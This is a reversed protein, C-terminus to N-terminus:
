DYAPAAGDASALEDYVTYSYRWAVGSAKVTKRVMNGNVDYEFQSNADEQLRNAPDTVHFSSRHSAIRNGEPDLTYSELTAGGGDKVQTLREIADLTYARNRPTAANEQTATINGKVDYSYAFTGLKLNLASGPAGTSSLGHAISKLRGTNGNAALPTEFAAATTLGNPSTVSTRRGATDYALGIIRGSPATVSTLRDALDYGYSTRAGGADRTLTRRGLIDYAHDFSWAAGLGGAAQAARTLQNRSDYTFLYSAASAAGASVLNDPSSYRDYGYTRLSEPRGPAGASTLRQMEDYVFDVRTGDPKIVATRLDRSDYEFRWVNGTPNTRSIQRGLGDYAFVTTSGRGDTIAIVNDRRDHAVRRVIGLADSTQTVRNVADYSMSTETGDAARVKTINDKLDYSPVTTGSSPDVLSALRGKADYSRSAAIGSADTSRLLNGAPDYAFSSSEGKGNVATLARNMSDYTQSSSQALPTGFGSVSATVNGRNDMTVQRVMGRPDTVGTLRGYIDYACRTTAGAEDRDTLKLGQLNYTYAFDSSNPNSRLRLNGKADYAYSTVIGAADRIRTMRSFVPEYEYSVQRELPTGVAERKQTVNGQGDYDLATVLGGAIVDSPATVRTVLNNLDRDFRTTRGLPDTTRIVAGWENVEQEAANGKADALRVV